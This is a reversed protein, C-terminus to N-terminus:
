SEEIPGGRRWYGMFTVADKPIGRDGVLHRRIDRVAASEGAVWAYPTGDPLDAGRVADLLVTTEGAPAGSRPVWTLDVEPAGTLHRREADDHIEVFVRAHTGAPLSGVIAGIAPLATEDGIILQWGAGPLPDYEAYAGLMAARDGPRARGAWASAPGTDGHLVFDIDLEGAYPRAERVTYTRMVARTDPDMARWRQYWDEGHPVDPRDQGPHPLFLKLRQDPGDDIFDTLGEGGFTIRAMHPSLRTVRIVHLDHYQMPVHSRARRRARPAATVSETM